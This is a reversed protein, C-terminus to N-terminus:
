SAPSSTGDQPSSGEAEFVDLYGVELSTFKPAKILLTSDSFDSTYGEDSQTEGLHPEDAWSITVRPKGFSM